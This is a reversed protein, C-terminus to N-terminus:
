EGSVVPAGAGAEAESEPGVVQEEQEGEEEASKKVFVPKIKNKINSLKFTTLFQELTLPEDAEIEATIRERLEPTVATLPIKILSFESTVKLEVLGFRSIVNQTVGFPHIFFYSDLTQDGYLVLMNKGNEILSSQSVFVIPLKFYRALIWIDVNTLFYNESQVIQTFTAKGELILNAYRKMGYGNLVMNLKKDFTPIRALKEYEGVLIEKLKAVTTVGLEDVHQYQCNDCVFYDCKFCTFEVDGMGISTKCRHCFEGEEASTGASTGTGDGSLASSRNGRKSRQCTHGSPCKSANQAAARLITLIVDFSCNESENSFLIEFADKPFFLDSMKQPVKRKSIQGCFDLVHNIEKVSFIEVGGLGLGVGVGKSALSERSPPALAVGGASGSAPEVHKELEMYRDVYGKRYLNDYVQVMATDNQNPNVTYFNTNSSYPNYDVPDLNEFYDQTILSELLIIEDDGLHYKTEQFTLYKAPEFMFLKVREYRIMEDTLKGFYLISNNIEHYMLNNEPILLKCLGDGEKMCYNKSSCTKDDSSICGSIEGIIRLTDKNYKIFSVYKKMLMKMLEVIKSLKNSYIIFPSNLVKEIEQKTSKNEPKNMVIRATNRFVNYFNTELRINRVYKERAKDISGHKKTMIETEAVLQNSETVTPIGDNQNLQANKDVDVQIFQNTETIVGIVIGDEVVKVKPRCYIPQKTYKKVQEAVQNLFEITMEYSNKWLDDNDMMVLPYEYLQGSEKKGVDSLSLEGVGSEKKNKIIVPSAATPIFGEYVKQRSRSLVASQSQSPLKVTINKKVYLGIIKGNYNMVQSRIEFGSDSLLKAIHTAPKNMVYKYQRPQSSHLRCYSFYLDRITEIVHKIKPMITKSKIAFRGLVNFKGNSKSEFSYIPEYYKDRKMIIITKKDANFVEGSYSNTPCIVQVNNTIDDDPIHILIINNGKKFLKSNPQSVIDWLYTHDIVVDDDSLYSIFNEFANCMKHFLIKTNDPSNQNQLKKYIESTKYKSLDRDHIENKSNYFVDVLTGNQLTIFNDIDLSQIIIKRMERITPVTDSTRIVAPSSLSSASLSAAPNGYGAAATNSAARPTMQIPTEDGSDYDAINTEVPQPILSVGTEKISSATPTVPAASASASAANSSPSSAMPSAAQQKLHMSTKEIQAALMSRLKSSDLKGPAVNGGSASAPVASVSEDIIESMSVNSPYMMASGSVGISSQTNTVTTKISGVNEMYYYAIVSLFSQKDNAEVGRRLLCPTDKKIATNKLSVQCNRSDTFLFKQVQVPLYGWRNNDLPFKESSLIRDDKMEGVKVIEERNIPRTATTDVLNVEQQSELAIDKVMGTSSSEVAERAERAESSVDEKDKDAKSGKPKEKIKISEHKKLECEQRRQTQSPKDWQSFCCPVCLGKPHADKKLFGPYHQKYEGKEDLHYKDDTFEFINAGPPIKKAKQPIVNGYKGSKVEEETLSTNHKLSWYRPCIYNYQKKPDSGYTISQSYSNPHEKDIKDKEENTIIVPQRRYNWPCSRSYANFKGVDENLHIIPDREQIRKSFPNPNTLDMGTIDSMDEREREREGGREDSEKDSDSDSDGGNGSRAVAKAAVGGSAGSNKPRAVGAKTGGFSGGRAEEGGGGDGEEDEEEDEDVLGFFAAFDDENTEAKQAEFGFVVKEGVIASSVSEPFPKRTSSTIDAVGEVDAEKASTDLEKVVAENRTDMIFSGLEGGDDSVQRDQAVNGVSEGAVVDLESSLKDSTPLSPNSAQVPLVKEKMKSSSAVDSGTGRCLENIKDYPVDTTGPDQYIRIISDIYMQLSPLFMLNNINSIEISIINNFQEKTIKTLFGPNNKIRISGGRYRSLQQMQISTLLGAIKLKAADEDLMYNERLGDIIERDTHRKNLMEVIYAEQSTMDNYNSVRKYRLLIGKKLSGEIENFVSSICKIMSKIEINRTIALKSFYEVNVIEIDDNYFDTFLNMNYGSQEVYDKIINLTPNVTAKIIETVEDISFTHKFYTKVHVSGDAEIECIVPISLHTAKHAPMSPNSYTYNIYVAVGKKRAVTKMLRFIDSKPLYPIKRGSKSSGSTFLKYINDLRKGPNFKIFPIGEECHIKKFITDLSLNYKNQPNIIFEIGRIGDDIYNHDRTRREYVDYLLKVNSTQRMFRENLIKNDSEYLKEHHLNLTEISHITLLDSDGASSAIGQQLASHREEDRFIALYPFYLQIAYKENMVRANPFEDIGLEQRNVPDSLSKTYELVDGASTLYITNNIIFGFDLLVTKNTTNIIETIHAELFPDMYVADFPNIAYPYDYSVSSLEQGMVVNMFRLQEELKLNLINAYGYNGNFGAPEGLTTFDTFQRADGETLDAGGYNVTEIPHNDINLLFNQIRIPTIDMKGNSTLQDNVHSSTLKKAQKCFLYLEGYTLRLTTRTYILFKKKITEISDDPYIRDPVFVVKINTEEISNLEYESFIDKFFENKPDSAFLENINVIEGEDNRYEVDGYFVYLANTTITTGKSAVEREMVSKPPEFPAAAGAIEPEKGVSEIEKFENPSRLHCIKFIPLKIKRSEM